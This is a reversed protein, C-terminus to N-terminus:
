QVEAKAPEAAPIQGAGAAAPEPLVEARPKILEDKLDEELTQKLKELKVIETNAQEIKLSLQENNKKYTNVNDILATKETSLDRIKKEMTIIQEALNEKERSVGNMRVLISVGIIVLVVILGLLSGVIVPKENM